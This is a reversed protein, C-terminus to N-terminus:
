QSSFLFTGFYNGGLDDFCYVDSDWFPGSLFLHHKESLTKTNTIEINPINGNGASYRWICYSENGSSISIYYDDGVKEVPIEIFKNNNSTSDFPSIDFVLPDTHYIVVEERDFLCDGDTDAININTGLKLEEKNILGDGDNDKDPDINSSNIGFFIKQYSILFLCSLITIFFLTIILILFKRNIM